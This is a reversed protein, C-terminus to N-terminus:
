AGSASVADLDILGHRMAAMVVQARNGVGLKEYLNAIHTKTTSDSIYLARSIQAVSRGHALLQVVELERPSLQSRSRAADREIAALVDDATFSDPALAAHRVTSVLAALPSNKGVYASLRADMAAFLQQDKVTAALLVIGCAPADVRLQRAFGLGSGDPLVDAIVVVDPRFHHLTTVAAQISAAVRIDAFADSTALTSRLGEATLEQGDVILATITM